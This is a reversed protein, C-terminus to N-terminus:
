ARSSQEPQGARRTAPADTAFFTLTFQLLGADDFVDMHWEEGTRFTEPSDRLLAGALRVAENRASALDPLETGEADPLATGDYVDFYYRPM